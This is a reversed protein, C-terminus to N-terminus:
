EPKKKPKKEKDGDSPGSSSKAAKAAKPRRTLLYWLIFANIAALILAPTTFHRTLDLIGLALFLASDVIALWVLPSIRRVLGVVEVLTILGCLFSEDTAWRLAKPSIKALGSAFNRYLERESGIFWYDLVRQLGGPLHKEVAKALSFAVLLLFVAKLAKYLTILSYPISQFLGKM